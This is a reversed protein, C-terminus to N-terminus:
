TAKRCVLFVEDVGASDVMGPVLALPKQFRLGLPMFIRNYVWMARERRHTLFWMGADLVRSSKPQMGFVASREIAFGFTDLM